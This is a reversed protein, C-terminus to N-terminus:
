RHQYCYGGGVVRRQCAGGKKTRAGCISSSTSSTTQKTNSNSNVSLSKAVPVKTTVTNKEIRDTANNHTNYISETTISWTSDSYLAFFQGDISKTVVLCRKSQAQGFQISVFLLILLIRM